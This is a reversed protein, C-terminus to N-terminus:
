HGIRILGYKRCGDCRCPAPTRNGDKDQYGHWRWRDEAGMLCVTGGRETSQPEAWDLYQEFSALVEADTQGVDFTSHCFWSLWWEARRVLEINSTLGVLERGKEAQRKRLGAVFGAVDEDLQERTPETRFARMSMPSAMNHCLGDSDKKCWAEGKCEKHLYRWEARIDYIWYRRSEDVNTQVLVDSM